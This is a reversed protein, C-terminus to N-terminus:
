TSSINEYSASSVTPLVATAGHSVQFEVARLIEEPSADGYDVGVAGHTHIDLLGPVVYDEGVEYEQDFPLREKGAAVIKGGQIYVYGEDFGGPFLIHKSHIRTIMALEMM